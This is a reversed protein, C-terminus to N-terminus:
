AGKLARDRLELLVDWYNVGGLAKEKEQLERVAREGILAIADAERRKLGRLEDTCATSEYYYRVVMAADAMHPWESAPADQLKYRRAEDSLWRDVREQVKAKTAKDDKLCDYHAKVAKPRVARNRPAWHYHLASELALQEWKLQGVGHQMAEQSEIVAFMVNGNKFIAELLPDNCLKQKLQSLVVCNGPSSPVFTAATYPHWVGWREILGTEWNLLAWGCNVIGPDVGLLYVPQKKRQTEEAAKPPTNNNNNNEVEM